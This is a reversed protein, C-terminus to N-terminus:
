FELRTFEYGESDKFARLGYYKSSLHSELEDKKKMWSQVKADFEEWTLIQRYEDYITFLGTAVLKRLEEYSNFAGDHAQFLPIWGGTIHAIHIEYAWTPEDTLTYNRLYKSKAEKSSTALYYHTGM